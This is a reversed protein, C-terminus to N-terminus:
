EKPIPNIKETKKLGAPSAAIKKLFEFFPALREAHEPPLVFIIAPYLAILLGVGAMIETLM